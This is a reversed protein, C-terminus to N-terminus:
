EVSRLTGAPDLSVHEGRRLTRGQFQVTRAVRARALGGDPHFCTRGGGGFVETWFTGRDCPIGQIWEVRALGASMLRGDPHFETMWDHGGGQCLHGELLGDAPLICWDPTGDPRLHLLTREPLRARGLEVPEALTGAELAGDPYFEARGLLHLGQVRTPEVFVREVGGGAPGALATLVTLGLGLGM